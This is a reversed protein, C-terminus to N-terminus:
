TNLASSYGPYIVSLRSPDIHLLKEADRKTAESDCLFHQCERKAWKLRHNQVSIITKDFSEPYHLFSVDHITTIGRVGKGLPPQTWDSSWFVDVPGTFWPIPIIHLINWLWDLITPPLSIIVTKISPNSNKVEDCFTELKNRQRLSSGFLVYTNNTDLQIIQKVMERVYRGVGTGEYVVQSIDIGVNM